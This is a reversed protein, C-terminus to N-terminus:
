ENTLTRNIQKVIILNYKEKKNNPLMTDRLWPNMIKLLKYNTGISDSFSVLNSIASDITITSYPINPYKQIGDYGYKEPNEMILKLAIIRYIYRSTESNTYLDYFTSIKQRMIQNSMGRMGLNYSAASLTWNGYKKYAQNLYKCATETSKILDYRQDIYNNVELGNEKATSELLQWYGAAGKPSINIRLSSEALALYKFDSPINNAQLVSDIIPFFRHVYKFYLLTQSQLYINVVLERELSEYVDFYDIPVTENFIKLEKPIYVQQIISNQNEVYTKEKSYLSSIFFFVALIFSVILLIFTRKKTITVIM